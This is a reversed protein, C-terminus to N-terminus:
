KNFFFFVYFEYVFARHVNFGALGDEYFKIEVKDVDYEDDGFDVERYSYRPWSTFTDTKIPTPNGNEYLMIKMETLHLSNRAKIKYGSIAVSNDFTLTLVDSWYNAGLEKYVAWSIIPKDDYAYPECKWDTDQHDDPSIWHAFSGPDVTIITVNFTYSDASDNVRQLTIQMNGGDFATNSADLTFNIATPPDGPNIVGEETTFSYDILSPDFNFSIDSIEWELTEWRKSFVWFLSDYTRTEGKEVYLNTPSDNFIELIGYSLSLSINKFEEPDDDNIVKIYNDEYKYNDKYKYNGPPPPTFKVHVTASEEPNIQGSTPEITWNTGWHTTDNVISWNLIENSSYTKNAKNFIVFSGTINGDEDVDYYDWSLSTPSVGLFKEIVNITMTDTVVEDPHTTDNVTITTTYTGPATYLHSDSHINIPDNTADVNVIQVDSGDGFNFTFEYPGSTNVGDDMPRYWANFNVSDGPLLDNLSRVVPAANGAERALLSVAPGLTPGSEDGGIPLPWLKFWSDELPNWMWFWFDTDIIDHLFEQVYQPDQPQNNLPNSGSVSVIEGQANMNIVAVVEGFNNTVTVTTQSQPQSQYQAYNITVTAQTTEFVGTGTDNDFGCEFDVHVEKDSAFRIREPITWYKTGNWDLKISAYLDGIQGGVSVNVLGDRDGSINLEDRICHDGNTTLDLSLDIDLPNTEFSNIVGSIEFLGRGEYIPIYPNLLSNPNHLYFRGYSEFYLFIGDSVIINFEGPDVEVVRNYGRIKKGLIPLYKELIDFSGKFSITTQEEVSGGISLPIVSPALYLGELFGTITGKGGFDINIDPWHFPKNKFLGSGRILTGIHVNLAGDAEFSVGNSPFGISFSFIPNLIDSSEVAFGYLYNEGLVIAKATLKGDVDLTAKLFEEDSINLTMPGTFEVKHLRIGPMWLTNITVSADPTFEAQVKTENEGLYVSVITGMGTLTLELEEMIAIIGLVPIDAYFGQLNISRQDEGLSIISINKDEKHIRMGGSTDISDLQISFFGGLLYLYRSFYLNSGSVGHITDLTWNGEEGHIAFNGTFEGISVNIKDKIMLDLEDIETSSRGDIYSVANDNLWSVNIIFLDGENEVLIDVDLYGIENEGDYLHVYAILHMIGDAGITINIWGDGYEIYVVSSLVFTLEGYGCILDDAPFSLDDYSIILGTFCIESWNVVCTVTNNLNDKEYNFRAYGNRSTTVSDAYAIVTGYQTRLTVKPEVIELSKEGDYSINFNSQEGEITIIGDQLNYISGSFALFALDSQVYLNDVTFEDLSGKIEKHNESVSLTGKGKMTIQDAGMEFYKGEAGTINIKLDTAEITVEDKDGYGGIVINEEGIGIGASISGNGSFVCAGLSIGAIYLSEFDLYVSANVEMGIEDQSFVVIGYGSLDASLNEVSLQTVGSGNTILISFDHLALFASFDASVVGDAVKVSGSGSAVFSSVDLTTSGANIVFNTVNISAESLTFGFMEVLPAGKISVTIAAISSYVAGDYSRAEIAYNGAALPETDWEYSWEGAASDFADTEVWDGNNIRIEVKSVSGFPDTAEGTIQVVGSVVDGDEPTEISVLPYWNNGDNDITVSIIHPDSWYEGDFSQAAITHEGNLLANTGWDYSWSTTGSAIIGEDSDDIVIEVFEIEKGDPASATGSISTNGEVTDGDQPSIISVTPKKTPEAMAVDIVSNELILEANKVEIQVSGINRTKRLPRMVTFSAGAGDIAFSLLSTTWDFTEFGGLNSAHVYFNSLALSIGASFKLDFGNGLLRGLIGPRKLSWDIRSKLATEPMFGMDIVGDVKAKIAGTESGETSIEVYGTRALKWGLTIKKPISEVILSGRNLPGIDKVVLSVNSSVNNRSIELTQGRRIFHEKSREISFENKVAPSHNIQLNLESLVTDDKMDAISFLLNLQQGKGAIPGPNISVKHANKQKPYIFHPIDKHSVMCYKPIEEGAPSQYGARIRVFSEKDKNLLRTLGSMARPNYELYIEFFDNIMDEDMSSLRRVLITTKWAIAPPSLDLAPRRIVWVRIDNDGDGDIDIGTPLLLRMRTSTEKIDSSGDKQYRTVLGLSLLGKRNERIRNVLEKLIGGIKGRQTTGADTSSDDGVPDTGQDDAIVISSFVTTVMIIALFVSLLKISTQKARAISRGVKPKSYTHEGM